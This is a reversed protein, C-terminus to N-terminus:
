GRKAGVSPLCAVFTEPAFASRKRASITGTFVRACRRVNVLNRPHAAKEHVYAPNRKRRLYKRSFPVKSSWSRLAVVPRREANRASRVSCSFTTPVDLIPCPQARPTASQVLGHRAHLSATHADLRSRSLRVAAGAYRGVFYERIEITQDVVDCAVYAYPRTQAAPAVSRRSTSAAVLRFARRLAYSQYMPRKVSVPEDDFGNSTM